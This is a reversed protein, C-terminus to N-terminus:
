RKAWQPAKRAKKLGPKKREKERADRTLWGKAKFSPRLKIDFIVLARTLGHKIASAQGVKGGGKALISINFDRLHGALKLPQLIFAALSQSFYKNAKLGNIIIAGNGNKYLRIQASSSKRRGISNIFKGKFKIEELEAEPKNTHKITTM